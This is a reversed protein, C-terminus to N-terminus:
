VTLNKRIFSIRSELVCINLRLIIDKYRYVKKLNNENSSLYDEPNHFCNSNISQAQVRDVILHQSSPLLYSQYKVLSHARSKCFPSHKLTHNLM